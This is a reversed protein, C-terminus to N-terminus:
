EADITIILFMQSIHSVHRGYYEGAVFNRPESSNDTETPSMPKCQGNRKAYNM